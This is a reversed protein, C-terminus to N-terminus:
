PASKLNQRSTALARRMVDEEPRFYLRDHGQWAPLGRVVVAPVGNSSEGMVINAFGAIEDVIAEETITLPRGFLDTDGRFDRIATVGSWGVAHGTQGRRFARGCTDTLIVAVTRGAIRRIDERIGAAAAMPDPPLIIAIDDEVNSRDVGARVGIHGCPVAALIFPSELLVDVSADLIVQIFRPDEGAAAAIAIARETPEIETLNRTQGNAKASVSSAICLIDGDEFATRECILAALDDGAHIIPLGHIGMVQITMMLFEDGTPILTASLDYRMASLCSHILAGFRPRRGRVLVLHSIDQAGTLIDVSEQGIDFANQVSRCRLTHERAVRGIKGGHLPLRDLIKDRTKAGPEDADQVVLADGPIPWCDRHRAGDPTREDRDIDCRFLQPRLVHPRIALNGPPHRCFEFIDGPLQVVKEPPEVPIEVFCHTVAPLPLAPRVEGAIGECQSLNFAKYYRILPRDRQLAVTVQEGNENTVKKTDYRSWFVVMGSAKEGRRDHGGARRTQNYTGRWTHGSLLLLASGLLEGAGPADPLARGRRRRRM